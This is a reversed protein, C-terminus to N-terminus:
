GWHDEAQPKEEPVEVMGGYFVLCRAITIPAAVRNPELQTHLVAVDNEIAFFVASPFRWVM